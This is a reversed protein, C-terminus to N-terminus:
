LHKFTRRFERDSYVSYDGDPYRVLYDGAKGKIVARARTRCVFDTTMQIAMIPELSVVAFFDSPKPRIEPYLISAGSEVPESREDGLSSVLEDVRNARTKVREKLAISHADM